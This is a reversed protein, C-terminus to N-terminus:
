CRGQGNLGLRERLYDFADFARDSISEDRGEAWGMASILAQIDSLAKEDARRQVGRRRAAWVQRGNM